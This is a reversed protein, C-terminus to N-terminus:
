STIQTTPPPLTRYLQTKKALLRRIIEHSISGMDLYQTSECCNFAELDRPDKFIGAISIYKVFPANFLWGDYRNNKNPTRDIFVYPKLKNTKKYQQYEAAELSSYIKFSHARDTSGIFVIADKGLGDMLQPIEFHQTIRGPVTKCPCKNMDDCDVEVCNVALALDNRYLRNSFYFDKIISMREAVVEDELQELSLLSRNSPPIMNGGWLDNLIAAAIESVTM